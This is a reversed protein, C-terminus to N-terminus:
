QNAPNMQTILPAFAETRPIPLNKNVHTLADDYNCKRVLMVTFIDASIEALTAIFRHNRELEEIQPLQRLRETLELKITVPGLTLAKLLYNQIQDIRAGHMINNVVGDCIADDLRATNKQPTAKYLENVKTWDDNQAARRIESTDDNKYLRFM